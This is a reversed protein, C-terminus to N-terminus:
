ASLGQSCSPLGAIWQQLQSQILKTIKKGTKKAIIALFKSLNNYRLQGIWSALKM